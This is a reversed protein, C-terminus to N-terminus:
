GIAVSRLGLSGIVDWWTEGFSYGQSNLWYCGYKWNVQVLLLKDASTKLHRQM